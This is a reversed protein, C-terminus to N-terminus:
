IFERMDNAVEIGDSKAVSQFAAWHTRLAGRFSPPSLRSMEYIFELLSPRKIAPRYEYALTYIQASVEMERDWFKEFYGAAYQRPPSVEATFHAWRRLENLFRFTDTHAFRVPSITPTSM